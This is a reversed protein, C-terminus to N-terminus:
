TRVGDSGPSPLTSAARLRQAVRKKMRREAVFWRDMLGFRRNSYAALITPVDTTRDAFESLRSSFASLEARGWTNPHLCITWVGVPRAELRWLQQPIWMMGDADVFPYLAAGDSITRIGSANLVEVTTRDFSHNPAVWVDARVEEREFIELARRIREEQKQRSLGAFESRDNWGFLGKKDTVYVHQYGHVGITWGRSQWERVQRWFDARPPCVRLREDLNDPVVALLPRVDLDILVSELDRWVDWNMTPSLDDFRILYQATM